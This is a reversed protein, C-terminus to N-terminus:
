SADWGMGVCLFWGVDMSSFDRRSGEFQGSEAYNGLMRRVDGGLKGHRLVLRREM